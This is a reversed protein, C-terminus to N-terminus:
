LLLSGKGKCSLVVFVIVAIIRTYLQVKIPTYLVNKYSADCHRGTVLRGLVNTIFEHDCSIEDVVSNIDSQIDYALHFLEAPFKSASLTVSIQVCSDDKPDGTRKLLLGSQLAYDRIAAINAKDQWWNSAM